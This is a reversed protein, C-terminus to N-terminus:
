LGRRANAARQKIRQGAKAAAEDRTKRLQTASRWVDESEEPTTTVSTPPKVAPIDLMARIANSKLAAVQLVSFSNTAIWYMFIGAPLHATLPFGLLALVRFVNKMTGAMPRGADAGIEMTLLMGATAIAPLVYTPDALTLNTFWAFGGTEFGPVPALAMARLGFFVCIYVPAQAFAWLGALPNVGAKSFEAKMKLAAAMKGDHDNNAGARNMEEQLPKIIPELGQMKAATRHMRFTLPLLAVRLILTGAVITAWWPLGTTVYIAEFMQQALGPPTWGGLGIQKLDGIHTIASLAPQTAAEAIAPNTIFSPTATSATSAIQEASVGAPAIIPPPLGAPPAPTLASQAGPLLEPTASDHWIPEEASGDTQSAALDKPKSSWFFTRAPAFSRGGNGTGTRGIGLRAGCVLPSMRQLPIATFNRALAKTAPRTWATGFNRPLARPCILAEFVQLTRPHAKSM